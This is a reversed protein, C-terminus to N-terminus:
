ANKLKLIVNLNCDHGETKGLKLIFILTKPTINLPHEM